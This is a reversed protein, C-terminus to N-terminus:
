DHKNVELPVGSRLQGREQKNEWLCRGALVALAISKIDLTITCYVSLGGLACLWMVLIIANRKNLSSNRFTQWAPILFVLPYMLGISIGYRVLMFLYANDIYSYVGGMFKSRYSFDYGRGFIYDWISTQAFLETYQMSRTDSSMKKLLYALTQPSYIDVLKYAIFLTIVAVLLIKAIRVLGKKRDTTFSYVISWIVSQIIWSRSNFLIALIGCAIIIALWKIQFNKKESLSVIYLLWFGQIYYVLVSSNGLLSGPHNLLFVIYSFLSFALSLFGIGKAYKLFSKYLDPDTGICFALATLYVYPPTSEFLLQWFSYKLLTVLLWFATGLVLIVIIFFYGKGITQEVYSREIWFLCILSLLVVLKIICTISNEMGLQQYGYNSGAALIYRAESYSYIQKLLLGLFIIGLLLSKKKIKM